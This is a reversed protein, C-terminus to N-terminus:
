SVREVRFLVAAGGGYEAAEGVRLRKVREVHARHGEPDFADPEVNDAVFESISVTVESGPIKEGTSQNIESVEVMPEVNVTEHIFIRFDSM